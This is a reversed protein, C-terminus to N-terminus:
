LDAERLYRAVADQWDPLPKFGAEILKSKELRSNQPRAAKSQGYEAKQEAYHRLYDVIMISCNNKAKINAKGNAREILRQAKIANASQLTVKNLERNEKSTEPLLYLKLFEYSRKGNVYIDLYLSRVGNALEKERLRVPEKTNKASTKRAM